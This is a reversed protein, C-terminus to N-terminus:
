YKAPKIFAPVQDFQFATFQPAPVFVETQTTYLPEIRKSAREAFSFVILVLVFLGAAINKELLSRKMRKTTYM